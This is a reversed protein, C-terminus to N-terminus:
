GADLQKPDESQQVTVRKTVKFEGQKVIYVRDAKDGEKYLYEGRHRHDRKALDELIKSRATFSFFNGLLYIGKLFERNEERLRQRQFRKADEYAENSLQILHLDKIAIVNVPRPKDTDIFSVEGFYQGPQLTGLRQNTVNGDSDM